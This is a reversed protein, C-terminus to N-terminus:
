QYRSKMTSIQLLRQRNRSGTWQVRVTVTAFQVGSLNTPNTVITITGNRLEPPVLAATPITPVSTLTTDKIAELTSRAANMAWLKQRADESLQHATVLVYFTALAVLAFLGFSFLVEVLSMGKQLHKM